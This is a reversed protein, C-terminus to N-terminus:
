TPVEGCANTDNGGPFEMTGYHTADEILAVANTNFAVPVNFEVELVYASGRTLLEKHGIRTGRKLMYSGWAVQHIASVELTRLAEVQEWTSGWFHVDVSTTCTWLPRPNRGQGRPPGFSDEEGLVWVIRPPIGLSEFSVSGIAHPIAVLAAVEDHIASITDAM